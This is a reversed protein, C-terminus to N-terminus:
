GNSEPRRLSIFLNKLVEGDVDKIGDPYLQKVVGDVQEPTVDPLGMSRLGKVLDDYQHDTAMIPKPQPSKKQEAHFVVLRGNVGCNRHRVDLCIDQLDRTYLPRRTAVDYVPPPFIGNTVLQYFRTRGLGVMRAMETVSIAEKHVAM